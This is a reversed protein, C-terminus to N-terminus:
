LWVGCYGGGRKQMRFSPEGVPGEKSAARKFLIQENEWLATPM